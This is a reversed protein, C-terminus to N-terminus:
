SISGHSSNLRTSKRDLMSRMRNHAWGLTGGRGGVKLIENLDPDSAKIAPIIGFLLGTLLSIGATFGLVRADFSLDISGDALFPPRFSWLLSRGWYAVLLGAAGGLVSLLIPLAVHLARAFVC